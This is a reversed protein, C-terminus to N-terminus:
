SKEEAVRVRQGVKLEDVDRIIIKEGASLGNVIEIRGDKSEGVTVRRLEVRGADSMKLVFRGSSDSGIAAAPVWLKPKESREAASRARELFSVSASMEPLLKEKGELIEVRVQVVGKARNATPIIKRLRAAFKKGPIADVTVEAPQGVQLRGVNGENVDAELELTSLDALTAIAGTSSSGPQTGLYTPSVVEGLEVGKNTITGDFPARVSMDAVNVRLRDLRARAVRMQSEASDLLSRSAVGESWLAKQRQYERAAESHAAEAERIQAEMDASELIVLVEGRRVVSGVDFNIRTIRGAIKATVAAQRDAVLYGTATLLQEERANVTPQVTALDVIRARRPAVVTFYVIAAVVGIVAIIVFWKFSSGRPEERESRDIRLASLDPKSNPQVSM